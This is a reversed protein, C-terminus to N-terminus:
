KKFKCNENHWRIINTKQAQKSCYICQAVPRSKGIKSQRIKEKIEPRKAPNNEGLMWPTGGERKKGKFPSATTWKWGAPNRALNGRSITLNHRWKEYDNATMNYRTNGGFGGKAINYIPVLKSIWFIERINLQEITDCVEIIEKQFNERGYKKIALALLTGSGLYVPNNKTDKGIYFKGNILNTTKYIIM